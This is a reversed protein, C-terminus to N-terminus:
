NLNKGGFKISGTNVDWFSALLKAVTSKGSGSPGMISIWEGKQVSFSINDIAKVDGFHKSIKNLSLVEM